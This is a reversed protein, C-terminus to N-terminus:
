AGGEGAKCRHGRCCAMPPSSAIFRRARGTRLGRAGCGPRAEPDSRRGGKAAAFVQGAGSGNATSRVPISTEKLSLDLGAYQNM